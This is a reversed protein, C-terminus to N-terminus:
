TFYNSGLSDTDKLPKVSNDNNFFSFRQCCACICCNCFKHFWKKFRAIEKLQTEFQLILYLIFCISIKSYFKVIGIREDKEEKEFKNLNDSNFASLLVALIMNLIKKTKHM